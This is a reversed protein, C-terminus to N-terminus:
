KMPTTLFLIRSVEPDIENVLSIAEDLKGSHIANRIRVRERINTTDTPQCLNTEQAFHEAASPYGESVLYDM